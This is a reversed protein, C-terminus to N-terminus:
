DYLIALCVSLYTQLSIKNCFVQYASKVIPLRSQETRTLASVTCCRVPLDTYWNTDHLSQLQTVNFRLYLCKSSIHICVYILRLLLPHNIQHLIGHRCDVYKHVVYIDFTSYTALVM